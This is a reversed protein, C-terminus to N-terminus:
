NAREVEVVYKGYVLLLSGGTIIREAVPNAPLIDDLILVLNQRTSLQIKLVLWIDSSSTPLCTAPYCVQHIGVQSNQPTRGASACQQM